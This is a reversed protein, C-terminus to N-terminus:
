SAYRRLIISCLLLLLVLGLPDRLAPRFPDHADLDALDDPAALEDLLGGLCDAVELLRLEVVGLGPLLSDLILVRLLLLKVLSLGDLGPVGVVDASLLVSLEVLGEGVATVKLVLLPLALVDDIDHLLAVDPLEELLFFGM